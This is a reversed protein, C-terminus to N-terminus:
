IFTRGPRVGISDSYATNVPKLILEQALSKEGSQIQRNGIKKLGPTMQDSIQRTHPAGEQTNYQGEMTKKRSMLGEKKM